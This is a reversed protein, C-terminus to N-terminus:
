SAPPTPNVPPPNKMGLRYTKGSEKRKWNVVVTQHMPHIMAIAGAEPCDEVCVGCYWCEDPYVLVPTNGREPNPMLVDTRCVHVCINCGTCCNEDFRIAENPTIPNPVMVAGIKHEEKM